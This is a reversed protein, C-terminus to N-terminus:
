LSNVLSLAKELEFTEIEVDFEINGIDEGFRQIVVFKVLELIIQNDVSFIESQSFGWNWRKGWEPPINILILSDAWNPKWRGSRGLALTRLDLGGLLYALDIM